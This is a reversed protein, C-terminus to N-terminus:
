IKQTLARFRMVGHYLNRKGEAERFDESFDFKLFVLSHGALVLSAGDIADFVLSMVEKLEMRGGAESWAHLTLTTDQGVETKTKRWASLLDRLDRIDHVAKKDELGIRQLARTAGDESAAEVLEALTDRRGREKACRKALAAVNPAGPHTSPKM